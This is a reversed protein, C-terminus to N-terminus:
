VGLLGIIEAYFWGHQDLNKTLRKLFGKNQPLHRTEEINTLIEKFEELLETLEEKDVGGKENIKEQIERVSNDISISSNIVDGIVVNGQEAFINGICVQERKNREEEIANEKDKEYTLLCPLIDMQWVGSMYITYNSIMGYQKLKELELSINNKIYDPVEIANNTIRMNMSKDYSKCIIHVLEEATKDLIRM